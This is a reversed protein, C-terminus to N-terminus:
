ILLILPHTFSHIKQAALSPSEEPCPATCLPHPRLPTPHNPPSEQYTSWTARSRVPCTSAQRSGAKRSGRIEAERGGDPAPLRGLALGVRKRGWAEALQTIREAM